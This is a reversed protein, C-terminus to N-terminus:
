EDKERSVDADNERSENRNESSVALLDHTKTMSGIGDLENAKEEWAVTPTATATPVCYLLHLPKSTPPTSSSAEGPGTVSRGGAGAGCEAVIVSRSREEM